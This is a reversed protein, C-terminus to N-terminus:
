DINTWMILQVRETAVPSFEVKISGDEKRAPMNRDERSDEQDHELVVRCMLVTYTATRCCDTATGCQRSRQGEARSDV